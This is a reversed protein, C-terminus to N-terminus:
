PCQLLTGQVTCLGSPGLLNQGMRNLRSGDSAWCGTPDCSTIVVPVQALPPPQPEPRVPLGAQPPSPAAAVPAAPAMSPVAVPSQAVRGPTLPEDARRGLCVHAAQRRLAQLRADPALPHGDARLGAGPASAAQTEQAQLRQLAQECEASKLPDNSTLPDAPGAAASLGALAITLTLLCRRM